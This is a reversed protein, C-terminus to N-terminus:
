MVLELLCPRVGADDFGLASGEVPDCSKCGQWGLVGKVRQQVSCLRVCLGEAWCFSSWFTGVLHFLASM